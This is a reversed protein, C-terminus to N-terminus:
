LRGSRPPTVPEDALAPPPQPPMELVPLVPSLWKYVSFLAWLVAGVILLTRLLPALKRRWARLSVVYM